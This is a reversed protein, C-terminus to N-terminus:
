SGPRDFHQYDRCSHWDGGWRWGRSKFAEVVIGDPPISYPDEGPRWEGPEYPPEDPHVIKRGDKIMPNQARNIDIARGLAHNSLGSGGAVTRDDYGILEHVPFREPSLYIEEFIELVEPALETKMVVTHKRTTREGGSIDWTLVHVTSMGSIEPHPEFFFHEREEMLLAARPEEPATNHIVVRPRGGDQEYVCETGFQRILRTLRNVIRQLDAGQAPAPDGARFRLKVPHFVLKRWRGDRIRVELAASFHNSEWVTPFVFNGLSYVIPRGEYIEVGQLKHPHHGVIMDAGADICLRALRRPLPDPEDMVETGWHFSVILFDAERKAARVDNQLMRRTPETPEGEASGDVFVTGSLQDTAAFHETAPLTATSVYALVSITQGGATFVIPTRAATENPGAGTYAIGAEDLVKLTELLAEGGYDMIHNNALTMADFGAAALREAQSPPARFIFENHMLRGREDFKLPSPRGHTSLPCELNGIAYDASSILNRVHTLYERDELPLIDGVLIISAEGPPSLEIPEFSAAVESFPWSELASLKQLGRAAICDLSADTAGVFWGAGFFAVAAIAAAPAGTRRM